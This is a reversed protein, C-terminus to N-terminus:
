PSFLGRRLPTRGEGTGGRLGGSILTMIKDPFPTTMSRPIAYGTFGNNVTAREKSYRIDFWGGRDRPHFSFESPRRASMTRNSMDNLKSDRGFTTEDGAPGNLRNAADAWLQSGTRQLGAMRKEIMVNM